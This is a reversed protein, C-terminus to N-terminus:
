ATGNAIVKLTQKVIAYPLGNEAPTGVMSDFYMEAIQVLEPIHADARGYAEAQKETLGRYYENFDHATKTKGETIFSLDPRGALIGNINNTCAKHATFIDLKSPPTVEGTKTLKQEVSQLESDVKILSSLEEFGKTYNGGPTSRFPISKEMDRLKKSLKILEEHYEINNSQKCILFLEKQRKTLDGYTPIKPFTKSINHLYIIIVVFLTGLILVAINNPDLFAKM